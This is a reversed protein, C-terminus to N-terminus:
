KKNEKIRDTKSPKLSQHKRNLIHHLQIKRITVRELNKAKQKSQQKQLQQNRNDSLNLLM